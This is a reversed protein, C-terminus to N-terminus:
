QPPLREFALLHRARVFAVGGDGAALDEPAAAPTDFQKESGDEFALHVRPPRNTKVVSPETAIVTAVHREVPHRMTDLLRLLGFATAGGGVVLLVWDAGSSKGIAHVALLVGVTGVLACGVLVLNPVLQPWTRPTRTLAQQLAPHGSLMVLQEAREDYRAHPAPVAGALPAGCEGCFTADLRAVPAKCRSCREVQVENGAM